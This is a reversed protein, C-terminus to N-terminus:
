YDYHWRIDIGQRNDDGQTIILDLNDKLLYELIFMTKPTTGSIENIIAFFTRRNLYWGTKVSTGSDSGSRTNDIQVVDIGLEQTALTEVEDMLVGVLLDTPTSGGSGSVVQQWSELAYCPKNFLTYCVIDQQEMQPESEFRFEPDAANGEIIYYLIIPDGQKQSSQPIYSTNIYLDPEDVPGSFTFRGEELSFQKGLPRVYGRQANLTGFLQLESNTQKQADLEGRLEIELDLYRRNRVMFNREIVFQMDIALSDYPSFSTSEEGELEVTEVSKEGFDQLYIFGNKITLVGSAEPQTPSGTIKSNLDITLNYDDTNALRFRNAKATIDLNTPTIGQLDIHGTATFNGSGSKMNLSKLELGGADSFRLESNIKSLNIGAIPVALRGDNLRLYGKSVLNDKPGTISIDANLTGRLRNTYQKNLFDNFVSINFNDSLLNFSLIDTGEPMNIEFTRFDMSIPIEADISAAKQGRANIEALATLKEELHHYNFRAFASDIRIGSLTPETLNFVGEFDPEGATGSLQGNFSLVGTTQTIEFTNLISEFDSLQIPKIVLNGSVPEEFFSDDLDAPAKLSFPVDIIGSLKEEGQATIALDANLRQSLVNFDLSIKDIETNRYSLKTIELAGNGSLETPSKDIKINGSLIGDVFREDFIIDQIVGFDFNQGDAWLHQNLSDAFPISLNLYTGEDSRLKLTDTQITSNQYTVHFPSQLSLLRSPTQFNFSNWDLDTRLTELNVTYNGSQNLQGADESIIDLNFNGSLSDSNSIGITEFQLDRLSINSYTPENINLSLSYGYDDRIAIKTSGEISKASYLTDYYIDNLHIHGDFLLENEIAETINGSVQGTANFVDAGILPAFPQLNKVQMDLSLNNDPDNQNALNRRGSFSGEIVESNLEGDRITLINGDLRASIDLLTFAAGNVFSSDIFLSTNLQIKEPDFHRGNGQIKINISSPLEDIATIEKLNFERADMQYTFTPVETLFDAASASFDMKSDILQLFGETKVSGESITGELNFDSFPQGVITITDKAIVPHFQTLKTGSSDRSAIAGTVDTSPFISFTWPEDSLEFGKGEAKARFYIEGSLEPNRTWWGLDIESVEADVSWAPNETFVGRVDPNLIIRDSGDSLQINAMLNEDKLTGSGFLTEFLYEEFRINNLTFGWTIDAAAPVRNFQGEFSFQFDGIEADQSDNTFYSIDLNKGSIGFKTLTPTESFSFNSIILLDDFGSGEANLKLQLDNFNGSIDLSLNLDDSPLDYNIYPQVDRISFPKTTTEVALTSDSLNSFGNARIFSRGSEILLDNLSIIENKYSGSSSFSVAETLRGENLKFSLSSLSVSLQRDYSFGAKASLQQISLTSDPLYSPSNVRISSNDVLLDQIDIGFAPTSEEPEVDTKTKLLDQVNFQGNETESLTVRLGSLSIESASFRSNLLEWINYKIRTSDLSVTTDTQTIHLGYISFDNWLDGKIQDISLSGTLNKNALSVVQNKAFSHGWSTKLSYRLTTFLLILSFLSWGIYKLIRIAIHTKKDGM